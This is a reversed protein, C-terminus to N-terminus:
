ISGIMNKILFNFADETAQKVEDDEYWGSMREEAFRKYNIRKNHFDFWEAFRSGLDEIDYGITRQLDEVVHKFSKPCNKGSLTFNQKLLEKPLSRYLIFRDELANNEDQLYNTIESKMKEIEEVVKFRKWELQEVKKNLKNYKEVLSMNIGKM